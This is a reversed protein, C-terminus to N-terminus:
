IDYVPDFHAYQNTIYMKKSSTVLETLPKINSIPEYTLWKFINVGCPSFVCVPTALLSALAFVEVETAWEGSIDMNSSSAYDQCHAVKSFAENNAAMYNVLVTRLHKHESQTGTIVVV